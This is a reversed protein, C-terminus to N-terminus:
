INLSYVVINTFVSKLQNIFTISTPSSEQLFMECFTHPPTVPYLEMFNFGYTLSYKM